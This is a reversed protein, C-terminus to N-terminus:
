SDYEWDKPSTAENDQRHYFRFGPRRQYVLLNVNVNINNNVTNNIVTSNNVVTNVIESTTGMCCKRHRCLQTRNKFQQKCKDCGNQPIGGCMEQHVKLYANRCFTKNCKNCTHKDSETYTDDGDGHLTKQVSHLTKQM